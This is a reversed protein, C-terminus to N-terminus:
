NVVSEITKVLRNVWAVDQQVQNRSVAHLALKGGRRTRKLDGEHVIKNRRDVIRGLTRIVDKPQCEMQAACDQWLSGIGVM